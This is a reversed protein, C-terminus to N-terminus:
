DGNLPNIEGSRFSDQSSHVQIGGSRLGAHVASMVLPQLQRQLSIKTISVALELQTAPDWVIIKRATKLEFEHLDVLLM